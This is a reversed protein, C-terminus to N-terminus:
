IAGSEKVGKESLLYLYADELTPKEQLVLPHNMISSHQNGIFRIKSLTGEQQLSIVQVHEKMSKLETRPVEVTFIRGEAQSILKEISESFIIHGNDLIAINEATAEIDSAIHTSLIVVKEESIESLLNRFRLREEPDLGATPEDVILVKPDNLLAQAIGLRRKMGGSMAKVKVHKHISLNVQELLEEIRKKRTTSDIESLVGLYDMAQYATMNGYMSFDQPLFGVMSRIAKKKQISIGDMSIEGVTVPLLTVLTEMLTTKGAGNRGLLGFMGTSITLNIDHLVQKKGYYQNLHKIEIKM